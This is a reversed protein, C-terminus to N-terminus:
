KVGLKRLAAILEQKRYPKRLVPYTRDVNSIESSELEEYGTALLIKIAPYNISVTDALKRGSIAGPMIIDSLLIDIDIGTTLLELAKEGSEAEYTNIGITQLTKRLISRIVPEDDVLLLNIEDLFYNQDDIIISSKDEPIQIAELKRLPLIISFSSGKGSESTVIVCGKSQSVFGHVMSLGLGTGKTHNKNSYFPEFIHDKDKGNIGVGNDTVKIVAYEGIKLAPYNDINRESIAMYDTSITIKGNVTIADVSNLCLNLLSSELQTSDIYCFLSQKSIIFQIDINNPISRRLIREFGEVILNIDVYIPTLDQNSAFALLSKILDAGDHAASLADNIVEKINEDKFEPKDSLFELNGIIIALLNNFDHSIGGTLLGLSEMKQLQNLEKNKEMLPTIDQGVSLVGVIKGLYDYRTTANALIAITAGSKTSLSFEYSETEIGKLANNLIEHTSPRDVFSIFDTLLHLGIVENKKYGSIREAMENWENILGNNDIGFIPANAKQIFQLLETSIQEANAKSKLLETIDQGIVIFGCIEVNLSRRPSCNAMIEIKNNNKAKIPISINKIDKDNTMSNILSTIHNNKDNYLLEKINVKGVVSKKDHNTISAINSNWEVIIGNQDTGFIPANANEIIMKQEDLLNKINKQFEVKESINRIVACFKKSGGFSIENVTIEIPIVNGNKSLANFFVGNKGIISKNGTHLYTNMGKLHANKSVHDMLLTINKGVLENETYGFMSLMSDNVTEITSDKDIVVFGDSLSTIVTNLEKNKAINEIQIKENMLINSCAGLYLEIDSVLVNNYPKSSNAVGIMGIFENNHKLPLGLFSHLPPHGPPLGASRVDSPPNNSILTEGTSLVRGFLSDLNRFEMGEPRYLEKSAEDWAINSINFTKLYIGNHDRLVEGIFGIESKTLYLIGDLMKEFIDKRNGGSVVCNTLQQLQNAIDITFLHKKPSIYNAIRLSTLLLLGINLIIAIDLLYIFPHTNHLILFNPISLPFSSFLHFYVYLSIPMTSCFMLLYSAVLSLLGQRYM